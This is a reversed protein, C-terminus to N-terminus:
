PQLGSYVSLKRISLIRGVNFYFLVLRFLAYAFLFGNEFEYKKKNTCKLAHSHNPKIDMSIWKTAYFARNKEKNFFTWHMSCINPGMTILSQLTSSTHPSKERPEYFCM